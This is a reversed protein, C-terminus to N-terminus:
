LRELASTTWLCFGPKELLLMYVGWRNRGDSPLNRLLEYNPPQLVEFLGPAFNLESAATYGFCCEVLIRVMKGHKKYINRANLDGKTHFGCWVGCVPLGEGQRYERRRKAYTHRNGSTHPPRQIYHNHFRWSRM